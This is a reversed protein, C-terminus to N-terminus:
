VLVLDEEISRLLDPNRKVAGRTVLDIKVGLLTKLFEYLDVVEFGVPQDFEVLIDLDSNEKHDGRVYSGFLGLSRVHYKDRLEKKRDALTKKIESLPKMLRGTFTKLEHSGSGSRPSLSLIKRLATQTNKLFGGFHTSKTKFVKMMSACLFSGKMPGNTKIFRRVSIRIM